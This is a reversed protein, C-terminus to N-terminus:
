NGKANNGKGLEVDQYMQKVKDPSLGFSSGLEYSFEWLAQWKQQNSELNTTQMWKLLSIFEDEREKRDRMIIEHERRSISLVSRAKELFTPDVRDSDVSLIIKRYLEKDEERATRYPVAEESDGKRYRNQEIFKHDKKDWGDTSYVKFYDFFEEKLPQRKRFVYTLVLVYVVCCVKTTEASIMAVFFLISLIMIMAGLTGFRVSIDILDFRKKIPIIPTQSNTHVLDAWCLIITAVTMSGIAIYQILTQAETLRFDSTLLITVALLVMGVATAAYAGWHYQSHYELVDKLDLRGQELLKLEYPRYVNIRRRSFFGSLSVVVLLAVFAGVIWWFAQIESNELKLLLSWSPSKCSLEKRPKEETTKVTETEVSTGSRSEEGFSRKGTGFQIVSLAVLFAVILLLIEPRPRFVSHRNRYKM